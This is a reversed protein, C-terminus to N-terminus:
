RIKLGFFVVIAFFCRITEYRLVSSYTELFDRGYRQDFGRAVLREKFKDLQGGPLTKREFVWRTSIAKCGQPLDAILWTNNNKQSQIEEDIAERWSSSDDCNMAQTYSEPEEMALNLRFFSSAGGSRVQWDDSKSRFREKFPTLLGREGQKRRSQQRRNTNHGTSTIENQVTDSEASSQHANSETHQDKEHVVYTENVPAHTTDLNSPVNEEHLNYTGTLPHDIITMSKNNEINDNSLNEQSSLTTELQDSTQKNENNYHAIELETQTKEDNEDPITSHDRFIVDPTVVIKDNTPDYCRYTNRRSTFGVLFGDLTKSSWKDLKRSTNLFQILRGFIHLHGINSKRGYWHEYPTKDLSASATRNLIYCATDVVEAWLRFPLKSSNLITRVSEIVTRNSREATGNQQPTYPASTIMTVKELSLLLNVKDNKFESGNDCQLYQACRGTEQEICTFFELKDAVDSKRPLNYATRYKSFEDNLLLVFRNGGLSLPSIPGILDCLIVERRENEAVQPTHLM